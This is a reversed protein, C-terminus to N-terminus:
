RATGHNEEQNHTQESRSTQSIAYAQVKRAILHAPCGTSRLYSAYQEVDESRQQGKPRKPAMRIVSELADVLDKTAATPFGRIEVALDSSKDSLFLRGQMIVPELGNRIRFNKEVNTPQYIPLIQINGFREIAAARVLSGFLVQMGNAEIGLRRPRFEDYVSLIRELFQSATEHGAWSHLVFWRDLWDRAAVVLAQRARRKKSRADKGSAPDAYAYTELDSVSLHM